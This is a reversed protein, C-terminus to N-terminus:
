DLYLNKKKKSKKNGSMIVGDDGLFYHMHEDKEDKDIGLQYDPWGLFMLIQQYTEFEGEIDIANNINEFKQLLRDLPLNTIAATTVASGRLWNETALDSGKRGERVAKDFYYGASFSRSVKSGISPAVQAIDKLLMGFDPNPRGSRDYASAGVNKLVSLIHGAIGAGRLFSDLVGNIIKYDSRDRFGKQEPEDDNLLLPLVATQMAIFIANQLMGYYAIRGISNIANGRGKKLNTIEKKIIRGYQSQTNAYTLLMRGYKDAQQYSIRDPSSSQQSEETKERFDIFAQMEAEEKSLGQSEYKMVANRFYPAGGMVIALSDAIRTPAFGKSLLWSIAAGFKDRANATADALEAENVDIKVGSRREVMYDSNFLYMVDAWFQKQDAFRMTAKHLPNTKMDIYNSFSILQLIASRSNLFMTVGVSGNIWSYAARGLKSDEGGVRNRGSKMRTLMNEMAEVYNNGFLAKLKNMNKKSFIIDANQTFEQLYKKRSNVRLSDLLDSLLGGSDWHEKPQIHGHLDTIKMIEFALDRAMGNRVVFGHAAKQDAESTGPIEYGLRTWIYIRIAHEITLGPVAEENLKRILPKFAKKVADFQKLIRVREASYNNVGDAYPQHLMEEFFALQEKAKEGKGVLYNEILGRFDDAKPPVFFVLSNKNRGVVGAAVRSYETDASVGTNEELIENFQQDVDQAYAQLRQAEIEKPDADKLTGTEAIEQRIAKIEADVQSLTLPKTPKKGKNDDAISYKENDLAKQIDQALVENYDIQIMDDLNIEYEPKSYDMDFYKQAFSELNEQGLVDSLLPRYVELISNGKKGVKVRNVRSTLSPISMGDRYHPMNQGQKEKIASAYPKTVTITAFSDMLAFLENQSFNDDVIANAVFASMYNKSISYVKARNNVNIGKMAVSPVAAFDILAPRQKTGEFLKQILSYVQNRDLLGEKYLTKANVLASAIDHNLEASASAAERNGFYTAREVTLDLVDKHPSTRQGTLYEIIANDAQPDKTVFVQELTRSTIFPPLAVADKLIAKYGKNYVETQAVKHLNFSLSNLFMEEAEKNVLMKMSDIQRHITMFDRALQPAIAEASKEDMWNYETKFVSLLNQTLASRLRDAYLDGRTVSMLRYPNVAARFAQLLPTPNELILEAMRTDSYGASQGAISFKVSPDRDLIFAARGVIQNEALADANNKVMEAFVNLQRGEVANGEMDYVQQNPNQLVELTADLGLEISLAEVLVRKHEHPMNQSMGVRTPDLYNDWEQKTPQKRKIKFVGSYKDRIGRSAAEEASYRVRKGNEDTVFDFLVGELAPFKRLTNLTIEKELWSKNKRAWQMFDARRTPVFDLFTKYLLRKYTENMYSRFVQPNYKKYDTIGPALVLARTAVARVKNMEVPTLEMKRRIRSFEGQHNVGVAQVAEEVTSYTSEESVAPGGGYLEDVNDKFVEGGLVDSVARQAYNKFYKNLYAALPVGKSADYNGILYPLYSPGTLAEDEIIDQNANWGPLADWGRRKVLARFQPRYMEAIKFTANIKTPSNDAEYINQVEESLEKQKDTISFKESNDVSKDTKEVTKAGEFLKGRFGNTKNDKNSEAFRLQAATAKQKTISKAYDRIFNFVDRGDNFEIEGKGYLQSMRRIGDGLTEMMDANYKINGQLMGQSLMTFYEDEFGPTIASKGGDALQLALQRLARADLGTLQQLQDFSIRGSINGDKDEKIGLNKLGPFTKELGRVDYSLYPLMSRVFDTPANNDRIGKLKGEQSLQYVYDNLSQVVKQVIPTGQEDVQDTFDQMMNYLLTHKIEHGVVATNGTAIATEANIYIQKSGGSKSKGVFVGPRNSFFESADDIQQQTPNEIGKEMQLYKRVFEETTNEIVMDTVGEAEAFAKIADYTQKNYSKIFEVKQIADNYRKQADMYEQVVPAIPGQVETEIGQAKRTEEALRQNELETNLAEGKEEAFTKLNKSAEEREFVAEMLGEKQADDMERTVMESRTYMDDVLQLKADYEEQTIVNQELKQKLDAKVYAHFQNLGKIDIKGTVRQYAAQIETATMSSVGGIGPLVFGIVAGAGGGQIYNEKVFEGTTADNAYQQFTETLFEDFSGIAANTGVTKLTNLWTKFQGKVLSGRVANMSSGALDFGMRAGFYEAAGSVFGVDAASNWIENNVDEEVISMMQDPTPNIAGYKKKALARVQNYYNEGGMQAAPLIGFTVIASGIQSGQELLLNGITNLTQGSELIERIDTHEFYADVEMRKMVEDFDQVMMSRKKEIEKPIRSRAEGLTGKITYGSAQVPIGGERPILFQGEKNFYGVTNDDYNYLKADEELKNLNYVLNAPSNVGLQGKEIGTGIGRFGSFARQFSNPFAKYLGRFVQEVTGMSGANASINQALPNSMSSSGYSAMSQDRQKNLNDLWNNVTRDKGINNNNTMHYAGLIDSYNEVMTALEKNGALIHKNVIENYKAEVQPMDEFVDEFKVDSDPYTSTFWDRFEKNIINKKADFTRSLLAQVDDDNRVFDSVAKNNFEELKAEDDYINLMQGQPTSITPYNVKLADLQQTVIPTKTEIYEDYQKKRLKEAEKNLDDQTKGVKAEGSGQQFSRPMMLDDDIEQSMDIEYDEYQTTLKDIEAQQNEFQEVSNMSNSFAAMNQLLAKPVDVESAPANAPLKNSELEVQKLYDPDIDVQTVVDPMQETVTVDEVDGDIRQIGTSDVYEELTMGYKEAEASVQELTYQQGEYEFM